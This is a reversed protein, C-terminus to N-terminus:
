VKKKGKFERAAFVIAVPLAVATVIGVTFNVAAAIGGGVFDLGFFPVNQLAQAAVLLAVFGTFAGTFGKAYKGFGLGEVVKIIYPSIKQAAFVVVGVAIAATAIGGFADLLSGTIPDTVNLLSSLAWAM